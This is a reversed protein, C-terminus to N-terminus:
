RSVPPGAAIIFAAEDASINFSDCGAPALWAAGPRFTEGAITGQGDLAIFIAPQTTPPIAAQGKVTLKDTRFYECRALLTSGTPPEPGEIRTLTSVAMSDDLHLERAPERKYDYLRYTIDSHQQIECLVLGAGIAHIAGAPVFFTHGPRAPIWNLMEVIDGTLAAERLGEKSIPETLGLAVSAGPESRLVHWMETKGRTGGHTRAYADDPHVQVSLRESTFLLKVLVPLHDLAEYWLEGVIRGDPNDLWPETRPSGWM